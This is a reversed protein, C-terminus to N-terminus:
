FNFTYWEDCNKCDPKAPYNGKYNEIVLRKRQEWIETLSYENLSLPNYEGDVDQKCFAATGDSLIYLDRQLHWCPGRKVPSLDSYRRDEIRGFYTNQKQLIIPIKHGEWFDYYRDLFSKQSKQNELTDTENIKMIQIYVRTNDGNLESLSVINEFVSDFHDKGHLSIYSEKEFSNSNIVIKIKSAEPKALYSKFNNDAKIGNTEIILMEALPEKIVMDMFSYFEPHEMPEGSGGFCLTYALNFSRLDTLIKELIKKDMHSHKNKLTNRYCFICDLSCEGTIETEIYSPGTYLVEPNDEILSKVTKYSPISNNLAYINEIIKKERPSSTRFNLRKDRIDPDKYYLEVDFQNINSRVVKSLPLTEETTEPLQKILEGSIIECSYGEPLNESFTFESLYTLHLQIMEEIIEPDLFPADAKIVAIHSSGTKDFIDKWFLLDDAGKRLFTDPYKKIEGSYDAPISFYIGSDPFRDKLASQILKPIFGTFLELAADSIGSDLFILFDVDSKEMTKGRSM